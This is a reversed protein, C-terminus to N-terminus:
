QRSQFNISEPFYDVTQTATICILLFPSDICTSPPARSKGRKSARSNKARAWGRSKECGLPNKKTRTQGATCPRRPPKRSFSFTRDLAAYFRYMTWCNHLTYRRSKGEVRERLSRGKRVGTTSRVKAAARINTLRICNALQFYISVRHM